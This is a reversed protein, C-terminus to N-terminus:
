SQRIINNERYYEEEMWFMEQGIGFSEMKLKNLREQLEEVESNIEGIRRKGIIRKWDLIEKKSLAKTIDFEGILVQNVRLQDKKKFIIHYEVKKVDYNYIIATKTGYKDPNNLKIRVPIGERRKDGIYHMKGITNM